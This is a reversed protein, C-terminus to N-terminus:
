AEPEVSRSASDDRLVRRSPLEGFFSELTEVEFLAQLRLLQGISLAGDREVRSWTPQSVGVYEAVESQSLARDRRLERIRSALDRLVTGSEENMISYIYAPSVTTSDEM